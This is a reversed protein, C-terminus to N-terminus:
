FSRRDAPLPNKAIWGGCAFQYFDVCPDAKRDLADVEIGKADSARTQAAAIAAALPLAIFILAILHRRMLAGESVMASHQNSIASKNRIACHPSWSRDILM